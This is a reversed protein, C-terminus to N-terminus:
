GPCVLWCQSTPDYLSMDVCASTTRCSGVNDAVLTILYGHLRRSVSLINM